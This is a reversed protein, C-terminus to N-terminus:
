QGVPTQRRLREARRQLNQADIDRLTRTVGTNTTAVKDGVAWNKLSINKNTLMDGFTARRTSDLQYDGLTTQAADTVGVANMISRMFGPNTALENVEAGEDLARVVVPMIREITAPDARLEDSLIMKGDKDKGTYVQTIFTNLQNRRTPDVQPAGKGDAPPKMSWKDISENLAKASKDSLEMGLRARAVNNTAAAGLRATELGFRAQAKREEYRENNQATIGGFVSPPQANRAELIREREGSADIRTGGSNDSAMITGTGPRPIAITGDRLSTNMAATEAPGM